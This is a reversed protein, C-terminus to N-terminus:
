LALLQHPEPGCGYLKTQSGPAGGNAVSNSACEEFLCGIYINPFYGGASVRSAVVTFM